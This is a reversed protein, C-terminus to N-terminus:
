TSTLNESVVFTKDTYGHLSGRGMGREKSFGIRLAEQDIHEKKYCWRKDDRMVKPISHFRKRGFRINELAALFLFLRTYYSEM